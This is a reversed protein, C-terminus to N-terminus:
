VATSGIYKTFVTERKTWGLREFIVSVDAHIKTATTMVVVGRERLTKEVFQFMKIGTRGKRHERALFYIDTHGFLDKKYHLHTEIISVHYGILKGDLRVTVILIKGLAVLADYKEYDVALKIREKNMAIEQWHAPFFVEMEPRVDAWQEVQYTITVKGM